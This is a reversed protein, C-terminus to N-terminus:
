RENGVTAALLSGDFAISRPNNLAGLSDGLLSTCASSAGLAVGVDRGIFGNATFVSIAAFLAASLGTPLTRSDKPLVDGLRNRKVRSLECMCAHM